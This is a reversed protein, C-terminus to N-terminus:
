LRNSSEILSRLKSTLEKDGILDEIMFPFRYNWNKEEPTAPTNIKHLNWDELIRLNGVCLLDQLMQISFQSNTSFAFNLLLELDENPSVEINKNVGAENTSVSKENSVQTQLFERLRSREVESLENMWWDLALSTDHTSLTSIADKRYDASPIYSGDEFSRTWRIVDIGFLGRENLSDRVFGPVSGLDEACPVMTTFQDFADLVKEGALKWYTEDHGLNGFSLKFLKEKDSDSFKQFGEEQHFDWFFYYSDKEIKSILERSECLTPDIKEMEFDKLSVGRQPYFYGYKANKASDPIAWIRYMGIVHDIRYLHFFNEQYELREKWPLYNIQSMKEWDLVPFGWNQGITSFADPPAGASLDMRYLERKEWIDASNSSTLIPMDGKLYLGSKTFADKAEKLQEFALAQLWAEFLISTRSESNAILAKWTEEQYGLISEQPEWDRWHIGNYLNYYHKFVLYSKTWSQSDIFKEAKKCCNAKNEDFHKKLADLKLKTIRSKNIKTTAISKKRSTVPINAMTLSIYIPDIAFSSLSSYPSRGFGSDNLPLIQLISFGSEKLWPILAIVSYIDGSEFSDKSLISWVPICVGARRQDLIPNQKRLRSQASTQAKM